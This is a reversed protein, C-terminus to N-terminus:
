TKQLWAKSITEATAPMSPLFRALTEEAPVRASAAWLNFPPWRGGARAAGAVRAHAPHPPRRGPQHGDAPGGREPGHGAGRALLGPDRCPPAGPGAADRRRGPAM